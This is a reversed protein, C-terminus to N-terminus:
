AMRHQGHAIEEELDALIQSASMITTQIMISLILHRLNVSTFFQTALAVVLIAGVSFLGLTPIPRTGVRRAKM